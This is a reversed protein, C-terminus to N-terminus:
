ICHQLIAQYFIKCFISALSRQTYKPFLLWHRIQLLSMSHVWSESGVICPSHSCDACKMEQSLGWSTPLRTALVCVGLTVWPWLFSPHGTMWIQGLLSGPGSVKWTLFPFTNTAWDHEVRQSGMSQLGGPKETWPIRWALINSQTPVGTELNEQGRSQVHTEQM